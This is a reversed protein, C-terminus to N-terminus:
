VVLHYLVGLILCCISLQMLCAYMRRHGSRVSSPLRSKSCTQLHSSSLCSWLLGFMIVACCLWDSSWISRLDPLRKTSSSGAWPDNTTSTRTKLQVAAQASTLTEGNKRKSRAVRRLTALDVKCRSKCVRDACVTAPIGLLGKWVGTPKCTDALTCQKTCGPCTFDSVHQM